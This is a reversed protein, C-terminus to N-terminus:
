DCKVCSAILFFRLTVLWCHYYLTLLNLFSLIKGFFQWFIFGIPVVSILSAYLMLVIAWVGRFRIHWSPISVLLVCWGASRSCLHLYDDDRTSISIFIVIIIVLSATSSGHASLFFFFLYISERLFLSSADSHEIFWESGKKRTTRRSPLFSFTASSSPTFVGRKVPWSQVGQSSFCDTLVM